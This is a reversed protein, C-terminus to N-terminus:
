PNCNMDLEQLDCTSVLKIVSRVNMIRFQEEMKIRGNKSCKIIMEDLQKGYKMLKRNIMYNLQKKLVFRLRSALVSYTNEFVFGHFAEIIKAESMVNSLHEDLTIGTPKALIETKDIM